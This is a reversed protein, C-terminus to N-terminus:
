PQRRAAAPRLPEVAIYSAIGAAELLGGEELSVQPEVGGLLEAWDQEAGTDYSNRVHSRAWEREATEREWFRGRAQRLIAELDDHQQRAASAHYQFDVAALM